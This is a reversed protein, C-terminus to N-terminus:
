EEKKIIELVRWRKDKSVPRTETIKVTDGIGCKNEEDHAKFRTTKKVIKKYVPHAFQRECAVVVTKDMRDSVVTGIRTKRLGRGEM